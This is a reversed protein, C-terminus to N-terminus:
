SGDNVFSPDVAQKPDVEQDIEGLGNWFESSKKVLDYMPGPSSETGIFRRSDAADFLKITRLQEKLDDPKIQLGEAMIPLAEDPHERLFAVSKDWGEVLGKVADPHQKAYDASVAAADTILGPYDKSSALIKGNKESATTLWPEWTAAVEVKGAVFASGADSPSLNTQEIDDLTLGAQELISALMFQTTTGPQVAVEKGKIAAVDPISKVSVIGDAGDSTDTALVNVVPVGKGIANVVTDVTTAFGDLKGAKVATARQLADDGVIQPVLNVGADRFFGQKEGIFYPGYGSYSSIGLRLTPLDGGSAASNGGGGGGSGCAAASAALALALLAAIAQRM